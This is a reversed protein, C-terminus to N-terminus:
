FEGEAPPELSESIGIEYNRLTVYSSLNFEKEEGTEIEIKVVPCNNTVNACGLCESKSFDCGCDPCDGGSFGIRKIGQAVPTWETDGEQKRILQECDQSNPKFIIWRTDITDGADNFVPLYFLIKQYGTCEGSSSITVWEPKSQRLLRVINDLAKRAEQQEILKNRGTRWSLDSTALVTLIAAFLFTFILAVVMTEVLTLGRKM